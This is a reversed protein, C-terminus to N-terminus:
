QGKCVNNRKGLLGTPYASNNVRRLLIPFQAGLMYVIHGITQPSRARLGCIIDDLSHCFRFVTQFASSVSFSCFLPSTQKHGYTYFTTTIRSHSFHRTRIVNAKLLEPFFLFKASFFCHCLYHHTDSFIFISFIKLNYNANLFKINTYIHTNLSSSSVWPYLIHYSQFSDTYFFTKLIIKAIDLPLWFTM